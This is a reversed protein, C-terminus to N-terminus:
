GTSGAELYEFLRVIQAVGPVRRVTATITESEKRTVLGMLFVTANETVVKVNVNTPPAIEGSAAMALKVNATVLVDESRRPVSTPRGVVLENHVARVEAVRRAEAAARRRAAEDPVQGTLLVIRNFSTVSVHHREDLLGAESLSARAKWEITEDEVMTGATRREAAMSSTGAIGATGVLAPLACGELLVATALVVPFAAPIRLMSFFHRLAPSVTMNARIM